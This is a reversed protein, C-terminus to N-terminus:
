PLFRLPDPVFTIAFLILSAAAVVLRGAGLSPQDDLTPPHGLRTMAAVVAAWFLWGISRRMGLWVLGAALFSSLLPTARGLAAYLIHGGDLQGAPLLNLTTVLLGFWGAIAVPHVLVTAPDAGTVLRALYATLLSDGFLAAGVQPTPDVRSMGLGIVLVVVAVVFGAWPGAAGMDLLARRDPFRSRVRIVAGFTGIPVPGLPPAPLFYPPTADVGYRRCMLYHGLEHCLLIALLSASFPLGVALAAPSAFPDAVGYLRAGAASTTVATVLFLGGHVLVRRVRPMM